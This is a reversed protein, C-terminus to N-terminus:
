KGLVPGPVAASGLQGPVTPELPRRSLDPVPRGFLFVTGLDVSDM